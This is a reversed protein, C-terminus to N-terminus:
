GLRGVAEDLGSAFWRWEVWRHERVYIGDAKVSMKLRLERWLRRRVGSETVEKFVEVWYRERGFALPNKRTVACWVRSQTIGGFFACIEAVREFTGVCADGRRVDYVGFYKGNMAKLGKRM